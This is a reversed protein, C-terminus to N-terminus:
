LREGLLSRLRWCPGQQGCSGRGRGSLLGPEPWLGRVSRRHRGFADGRQPDQAASLAWCSCVTLGGTRACLGSTGRSVWTGPLGARSSAPPPMLRAHPPGLASLTDTGKAKGPCLASCPPVEMQGARGAPTHADVAGGRGVRRFHKSFRTEVKTRVLSQHAFGGQADHTSPLPPPRPPGM